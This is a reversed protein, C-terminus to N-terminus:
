MNEVYIDSSTCNPVMVEFVLAPCAQQITSAMSRVITHKLKQKMVYEVHIRSDM